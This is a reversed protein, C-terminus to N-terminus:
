HNVRFPSFRLNLIRFPRALRKLNQALILLPRPISPPPGSHCKTLLGRRRKCGSAKALRPAVVRGTATSNIGGFSIGLPWADRLSAHFGSDIGSINKTSTSGHKESFTRYEEQFTKSRHHERQKEIYCIVNSRSVKFAGYGDQWGFRKMGSFTDKMWKSSGGKILKAAESISFSTPLALAIHIHDPMGGIKLPKIGKDRGM